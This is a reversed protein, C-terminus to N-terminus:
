EFLSPQHAHPATEDIEQSCHLIKGVDLRMLLNKTIVRKADRFVISEILGTMEPRMLADLVSQAEEISDFGLQYCTDDVVVPKHNLPSALTFRVKKYLSSVVIKYPKFTYDGIGFISFPSKGRYICSKRRTFYNIHDLLYRYTQPLNERLFSTDEGVYRQPLLIYKRTRTANFKIVDSSKILPFIFNEEIKVIEGIGNRYHDKYPELELVSSCDHKVGSRWQYPSLGDLFSHKKYSAVNSVFSEGVWGYTFQQSPIYLDNVNCTESTATGLRATLCSAEVSVNFEKSANIKHQNIDDIKLRLSHQKTVINKIVSNKLLMSIGGNCNNYLRLLNLVIAESIDFNSKGTIADIGSLNYENLKLPLNSKSSTGLASNTVWPPNGIIGISKHTSQVNTLIKDFDFKFIDATHIYIKRKKRRKGNLLSDALIGYKLDFTYHPNIEIAHLESLNPFVNLIARVFSGKGCTPEIIVDPEGFLRLHLRCIKEALEFPTQWDGYTVRDECLTDQYQSLSSQFSEKEQVSSFFEVIGCIDEIINNAEDISLCAIKEVLNIM